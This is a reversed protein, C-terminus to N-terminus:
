GPPPPLCCTEDTYACSNVPGAPSFGCSEDFLCTGGADACAPLTDSPLVCGGGMTCAGSRCCVGVATSVCGACHSPTVAGSGVPTKSVDANFQALATTRIVGLEGCLCQDGCYDGQAVQACDQDVTCSQDYDDAYILCHGSSTSTAPATATSSAVETVSSAPSRTTGGGDSGPSTAVAGGCGSGALTWTIVLLVLLTAARIGPPRQM